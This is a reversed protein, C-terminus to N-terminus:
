ERGKQYKNQYMGCRIDASIVQESSYRTAPCGKPCSKNYICPDCSLHSIDNRFRKIFSSNMARDLTVNNLNCEEDHERLMICPLLYGRYDVAFVTRGASCLPFHSASFNWGKLKIDMDWDKSLAQRLTDMAQEDYLFEFDKSGKVEFLRLLAVKKIGLDKLFTLVRELEPLNYRTLVITIGVKVDEKILAKIGRIARDFMGPHCNKMKIYTDPNITDLTVTVSQFCSAIKAARESDILTGNTCLDLNFGMDKAKSAFCFTRKSTLPEGGSIIITKIAQRRCDHLLRLLQEDDLSIEKSSNPSSHCYPCSLNCTNTIEILIMRNNMDPRTSFCCPQGEPLTFENM